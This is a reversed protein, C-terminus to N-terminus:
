QGSAAKASANIPGSDGQATIQVSGGLGRPAPRTWSMTSNALVYGVLGEGFNATNKGDSVRMRALRVRREGCPQEVTGDLAGERALLAEEDMRLTM